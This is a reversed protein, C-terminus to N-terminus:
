REGLDDLTVRSANLKGAQEDVLTEAPEIEFGEIDGDLNEPLDVRRPARDSDDGVHLRHLLLKRDADADM